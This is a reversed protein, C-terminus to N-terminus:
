SGAGPEDHGSRAAPLAPPGPPPLHAIEIEADPELFENGTVIVDEDAELGSRVHWREGFAAGLEVERRVARGGRAIWVVTRNEEEVVADKPVLVARDLNRSFAIRASMGPKLETRPNRLLVKVPFSRSAVLADPVIKWVLGDFARGPFAALSVRASAGEHVHALDRESVTCLAVIWDVRKMELIADGRTVYSGVDSHIESVVGPFPALIRLSRLDQEARAVRVRALEAEARASAVALRQADRDEDSIVKRTYLEEVRETRREQERLTVEAKQLDAKREALRLKYDSEEIQVIADGEHVLDGAEPFIRVIVGEQQSSVTTSVIPLLTAERELFVDELSEIEPRAVVVPIVSPADPGGPRAEAGPEGSCGAGALLLGASAFAGALFRPSVYRTYPATHESDVWGFRGDWPEDTKQM